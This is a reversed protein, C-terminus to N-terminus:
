QAVEMADLIAAAALDPPIAFWEGAERHDSLYAHCLREISRASGAPMQGTAHCLTLEHPCATQLQALRAAPDRSVGIKSFFGGFTSIVYVCQQASM